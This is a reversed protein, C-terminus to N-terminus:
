KEALRQGVKFILELAYLANFFFDAEKVVHTRKKLITIPEIKPQRLKLKEVKIPEPIIRVYLHHKTIM